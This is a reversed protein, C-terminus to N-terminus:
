RTNQSRIMNLSCHQTSTFLLTLSWDQVNTVSKLRLMLGAPSNKRTESKPLPPDSSIISSLEVGPEMALKSLPSPDSYVLDVLSKSYRRDFM